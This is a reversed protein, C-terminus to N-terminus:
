RSVPKKNAKPEPGSLFLVQQIESRSTINKGSL